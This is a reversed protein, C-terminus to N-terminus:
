AAAPAAGTSRSAISTVPLPGSPAVPRYIRVRLDPAGDPGPVARDLSTVRPNPPVEILALM